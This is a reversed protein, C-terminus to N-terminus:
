DEYKEIQKKITEDPDNLFEILESLVILDMEKQENNINTIMHTIGHYGRYHLNSPDLLSTIKYNAKYADGTEWVVVLGIDNSNKDGRSIDEILGDLSFKYELIHPSSLFPHPFANFSTQEIGLPNDKKHYLHNADPKEIAIKFLGDYVFRENTSMIRIGRIVGGALLQNFLAIVDQERTPISLLSIKNTPLFFNENIIILPKDTEHKLMENKWKHIDEQRGIDPITGTSPKLTYKIKMLPGDSIEKSLDKAFDVLESRFGKRGLDPSYNKFHIAFHIQNQRGVNRNLPIQITEGQPMNNAFIQIGGYLMKYGSRLNMDKNITDWLKLSYVFSVYIEPSYTNVIEKQEPTIKSNYFDTIEITNWFDYFVDLNTLNSPLKFNKGNKKYLDDERKTIDRISASKVGALHPWYYNIGLESIETSVGNRDKVTIGLKIKNNSIFAGLGTKIRLIKEWQEATDAMIWKLDKPHTTKDFKLFISVGKDISNFNPDLPGTKDSVIKPNDSASTENLWKRANEMKGVWEFDSTKTSIQIFNFGYALYTAGVGKHGRTNKSKFSINPGLFQKFKSEDLGLGNDTVCLTNNQIDISIWISPIYNSNDIKSREEISDLSNQILESFPDFWGVYSSLINELQRKQAQAAVLTVATSQADLPDFSLFTNSM